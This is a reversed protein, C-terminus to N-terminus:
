LTVDNLFKFPIDQYLHTSKHIVFSCCFSGWKRKLDYLMRHDQKHLALMHLQHTIFIAACEAMHSTFTLEILYNCYLCPYKRRRIPVTHAASTKYKIYFWISTWGKFFIYGICTSGVNAMRLWSEMSGLSESPILTRYSITTFVVCFYIICPNRTEFITNWYKEM